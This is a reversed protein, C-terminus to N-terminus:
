KKMIRVTIYSVIPLGALASAGCIRIVTDPLNTGTARAGLVVIAAAIVILSSVIQLVKAHKM